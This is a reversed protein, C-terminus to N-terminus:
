EEKTFVAGGYYIEYWGQYEATYSGFANLLELDGDENLQFTPGAYGTATDPSASDFGRLVLDLYSVSQNNTLVIKENQLVAKFTDDIKRDQLIAPNVGGTVRLKTYTDDGRVSKVTFSTEYETGEFVGILTGSWTGLYPALPHDLDIITVLSSSLKGLEVGPTLSEISVSFEKDPPTFEGEFSTISIVIEAETTEGSFFLLGSAPTVLEYDVGEEATDDIVKVAVQADAGTPNQLLVPIRLEGANEKVSYETSYMTVYSHIEVEAKRNCSVSMFFTVLTAVFLISNRKM